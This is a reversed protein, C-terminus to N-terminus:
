AAQETHQLQSLLEFIKYNITMNDENDVDLFGSGNNVSMADANPLYPRVLAVLKNFAAKTDLYAQYIDSQEPSSVKILYKDRIRQKAPEDLVAVGDIISFDSLMFPICPDFFLSYHAPINIFANIMNSYKDSVIALVRKAENRAPEALMSVVSGAKILQKELKASYVAKIKQLGNVAIEELTSQTIQGEGLTEYATIFENVKPLVSDLFKIHNRSYVERAEVVTGIHNTKM